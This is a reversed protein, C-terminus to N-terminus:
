DETLIICSLQAAEEPMAPEKSQCHGKQDCTICTLEKWKGCVVSKVCYGTMGCRCLERPLDAVGECCCYWVWSKAMGKSALDWAFDGETKVLDRFADFLPTEM